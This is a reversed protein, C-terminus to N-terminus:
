KSKPKVGPKLASSSGSSASAVKDSLTTSSSKVDDASMYGEEINTAKVEETSTSSWAPHELLVDYAIAVSYTITGSNTSGDCTGYWIEWGAINSPNGNYNGLFDDEFLVAGRACGFATHTSVSNEIISRGGQGFGSMRTEAGMAESALIINAHNVIPAGETPVVVYMLNDGANSTLFEARICSGFVRFSKYPGSSTLLGSFGAPQTTAGGGSLIAPLPTTGNFPHYVSNSFADYRVSAGSSAVISGTIRAIM